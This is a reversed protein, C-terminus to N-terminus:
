NYSFSSAFITTKWRSTLYHLCVNIANQLFTQISQLYLNFLIQPCVRVLSFHSQVNSCVQSYIIVTTSCVRIASSSPLRVSYSTSVLFIRQCHTHAIKPHGLQSALLSTQCTWLFMISSYFYLVIIPPSYQVSTCM